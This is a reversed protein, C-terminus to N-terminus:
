VEFDHPTFAVTKHANAAEIAKFAAVHSAWAVDVGCALEADGRIAACFNALHPTCNAETQLPPLQFIELEGSVHVEIADEDAAYANQIEPKVLYDRVGQKAIRLVNERGSEATLMVVPISKLDPDSKLKTLTEYGDMIPMTLDLIIIDPKEKAAVALGEVGNAAELVECDFSKFAKGIILRITKSDDITLIKPGM